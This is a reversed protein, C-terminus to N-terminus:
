PRIVRLSGACGSQTQGGGVLISPSKWAAVDGTRPHGQGRHDAVHHYRGRVDRISGATSVASLGASPWCWHPADNVITVAQRRLLPGATLTFFSEIRLVQGPKWKMERRVGAGFRAKRKRMLRQIMQVRAVADPLAGTRSIAELEKCRASLAGAAVAASSTTLIHSADGLLRDRQHGSGTASRAHASSGYRASGATSSRRGRCRM